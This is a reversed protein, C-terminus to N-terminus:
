GWPEMVDGLCCATLVRNELPLLRTCGAQLVGGQARWRWRLRAGCRCICESPNRSAQSGSLGVPDGSCGRLVAVRWGWWGIVQQDLSASMLQDEAFHLSTVQTRMTLRRPHPM